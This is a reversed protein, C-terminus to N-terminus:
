GILTRSKYHQSDGWEGFAVENSVSAIRSEVCRQCDEPNEDTCPKDEYLKYDGRVLCPTINPMFVNAGVEIAKERGKPDITQMATSAAINIDKMIIRLIAIMKLSLDFRAEKPLLIDKQQYLPTDKHELYPGMGVMDIDIDRMFLLDSALDEITQFPLGIMVGTGVQYGTERLDKLAQLRREFSHLENVPHIKEYLAKNSAEIRLLYRHAGAERWEKFVDISQEGMSLTVRLENNSLKQIEKLLRTIRSTFVPSTLEGSQIVLSGYRQKYAYYAANLVDEDSLNYRHVKHNSSRIGCYLCDKACINSLEILGRLYVKNQVYHQKIKGAYDFLELREEDQTKLLLVLDQHTHIPKELIDQIMVAKIKHAFTCNKIRKALIFLAIIRQALM